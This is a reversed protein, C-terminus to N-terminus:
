GGARRLAMLVVVSSFSVRSREGRRNGRGSTARSIQVVVSAAAATLTHVVAEAVALEVM